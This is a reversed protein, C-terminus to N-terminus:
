LVKVDLNIGKFALSQDGTITGILKYVEQNALLIDSM